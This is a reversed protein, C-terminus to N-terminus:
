KARSLNLSRVEDWAIDFLSRKKLSEIFISDFVVSNYTRRMRGGEERDSTRSESILSETATHSSLGKRALEARSLGWKYNLLFYRGVAEDIESRAQPTDEWGLLSLVEERDYSLRYDAARGKRWLLRLLALLVLPDHGRPLCSSGDEPEHTIVRVRRELRVGEDSVYSITFRWRRGVQKEGLGALLFHSLPEGFTDLAFRLLRREPRSLWLHGGEGRLLGVIESDTERASM